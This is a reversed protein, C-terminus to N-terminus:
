EVAVREVVRVAAETAEVREVEVTVAVAVEMGVEEKVVVMVAVVMVAVREVVWGAVGRAVVEM